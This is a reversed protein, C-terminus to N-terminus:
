TVGTWEDEGVDKDEILLIVDMVEWGRERMGVGMDRRKGELAPCETFIYTYSHRTQKWVFDAAPIRSRM